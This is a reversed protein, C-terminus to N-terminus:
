QVFKLLHPPQPQIDFESLCCVVEALKKLNWGSHSILVSFIWPAEPGRKSPHSLSKGCSRPEELEIVVSELHLM